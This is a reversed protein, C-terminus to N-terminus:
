LFMRYLFLSGLLVFIGGLALFMNAVMYYDEAIFAVSPSEPSFLVTLRTGIEKRRGYGVDGTVTFRTRGVCYEVVPRYIPSADFDGSIGTLNDVVTGPARECHAVKEKLRRRYAIGVVALGAGVIPFLLFLYKLQEIM